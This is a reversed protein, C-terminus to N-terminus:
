EMASPQETDGFGLVEGAFMDATILEPLCDELIDSAGAPNYTGLESSGGEPNFGLLTTMYEAVSAETM